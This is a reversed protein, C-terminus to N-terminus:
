RRVNARSLNRLHLPYAAKQQDLELQIAFIEQRQILNRRNAERLQIELRHGDALGGMAISVFATIVFLTRVSIQLKKNMGGM